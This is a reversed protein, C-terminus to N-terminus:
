NKVFKQFNKQTPVSQGMSGSRPRGQLLTGVGLRYGPQAATILGHHSFDISMEIFNLRINSRIQSGAEQLMINRFIREEEVIGNSLALVSVSCIEIEIGYAALAQSGPLSQSDEGIHNRNKHIM